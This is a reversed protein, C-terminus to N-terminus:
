LQIGEAKVNHLFPSDSTKFKESSIFHRSIVVDYKLSTHAIFQGTNDIEHYPNIPANLVVLIDIDSFQHSDARAQSGYLIIAELQEHYQSVLHAKVEQLIQKLQPHQM